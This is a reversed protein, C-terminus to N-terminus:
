PPGQADHFTGALLTPLVAADKAWGHEAFIFVRKAQMNAPWPEATSVGVSSECLPERLQYVSSSALALRRRDPEMRFFMPTAANVPLDHIWDDTSCWSVLATIDLPLGSPMQRRLESLLRRYFARESKKADFDVQLAAMGPRRSLANLEAVVDQLLREDGRHAAFRQDTDIRAVAIRVVHRPLVIPENRGIVAASSGLRLTEELIAVGTTDTPLAHVDEPREWVWLFRQPLATDQAASQRVASRLEHEISFSRAGAIVSLFLCAALPISLLRM